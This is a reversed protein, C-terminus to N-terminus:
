TGNASSIGAPSEASSGLERAAQEARATAGMETFLRHAERLERQRAVEDGRRRELAAREIRIWPEWSRAGTEEVLATARDLADNVARPAALGETATLAHALALRGIIEYARMGLREAAAIAEEAAVRAGAGDGLGLRARSLGALILPELPVGTRTERVVALARGLSDAAARWQEDHVHVWGLTHRAALQSFSTGVTEALQLARSAHDLAARMDGRRALVEALDCHIWGLLEGAQLERALEAGRELTSASEDLRGMDMLAEGRVVLFFVHPVIGLVDMGAEPNARALVLSGDAVTLAERLRGTLLHAYSLCICAALRCGTEGAEDALRVAEESREIAEDLGGDWLRIAGYGVILRVLLHPERAWGAPARGEALLASAEAEDIGLRWGLSLIGTRARLGLECTVAAAPLPDLLTRVRQWHRLAERADSV